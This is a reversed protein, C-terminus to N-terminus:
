VCMVYEVQIIEFIITFGEQMMSVRCILIVPLASSNWAKEDTYVLGRLVAQSLACVLCM